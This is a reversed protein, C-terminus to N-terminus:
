TEVGYKIIINLSCNWFFIMIKVPSFQNVCIWTKRIPFPWGSICLWSSLCFQCFMSCQEHFALNKLLAAFFHVLKIFIFFISNKVCFHFKISAQLINESLFNNTPRNKVLRSVTNPNFNAQNSWFISNAELFNSYKIFQCLTPGVFIPCSKLFHLVEM